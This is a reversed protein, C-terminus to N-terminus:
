RRLMRAAFVHTAVGAATAELRLIDYADGANHGRDILIGLARNISSLEPLGTLGSDALDPSLDGDLVLSIPLEAYPAADSAAGDGDLHDTRVAAKLVYGLDAALDVFAGPTSAYFIIRSGEDHGPGLLSLPVRLSTTVAGDTQQPILETLTVPQDSFLITVQLGRYSPIVARLHAALNTLPLHLIEADLGVSNAFQALQNFLATSIDV